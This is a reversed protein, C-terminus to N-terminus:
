NTTKPRKDETLGKAIMTEGMERLSDSTQRYQFGLVEKSRSNDCEIEKGWMRVIGRAAPMFFSFFRVLCYKAEATPVAYGQGGFHNHLHAAIERM